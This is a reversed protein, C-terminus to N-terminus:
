LLKYYRLERPPPESQVNPFPEESLPHDAVPAPKRPFIDSCWAQCLETVKWVTTKAM